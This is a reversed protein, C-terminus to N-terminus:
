WKDAWSLKTSVIISRTSIWGLAPSFCLPADNSEGVVLYMPYYYRGAQVAAHEPKKTSNPWILESIDGRHSDVHRIGQHGIVEVKRNINLAAASGNDM